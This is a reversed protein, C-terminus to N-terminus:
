YPSSIIRMIIRLDKRQRPPVRRWSDCARLPVRVQHEEAAEEVPCCRHAEHEQALLACLAPEQRRRLLDAKDGQTPLGCRYPESSLFQRLSGKRANSVLNKLLINTKFNTQESLERCVPCYAPSEAKEWSACFCSWCFSHGCGMTVPDTLYNLCVICALEERFAQSM